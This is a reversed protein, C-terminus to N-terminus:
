PWGEPDSDLGRVEFDLRALAGAPATGGSPELKVDVVARPMRVYEAGSAVDVRMEGNRGSSPPALASARYVLDWTGRVPHKLYVNAAPKDHRGLLLTLERPTFRPREFPSLQAEFVLPAALVLQGLSLDPDAHTRRHVYGASLTVEQAGAVKYDLGLCVVVVRQHAAVAPELRPSPYEAPDAQAILELREPPGATGVDTWWDSETALRDLAPRRRARSGTWGQEDVEVSKSTLRVDVHRPAGPELDGVAAHWGGLQLQANRLRAQVTITGHVRKGPGLWEPQDTVVELAATVRPAPAPEMVHFSRESWMPVTVDVAALDPGLTSMVVSEGPEVGLPMALAPGGGRVTYGSEKFAHVRVLADAAARPDGARGFVVTLERALTASGRRLYGLGFALGSFTLALLPTVLWVMHLAHRRRLVLYQVPGVLVWYATVFLGVLWPTRRNPPEASLATEVPELRVRGHGLQNVRAAPRVDFERTQGRSPRPLVARWMRAQATRGTYSLPSRELDLALYTVSGDGLRARALLPVAGQPGKETVFARAGARLTAEPVLFPERVKLADSAALPLGGGGTSSLTSGPFAADLADLATLTVTHGTLEVPLVAALPTGLLRGPRAGGVVILAGGRVTWDLVADLGGTAARELDDDGVVIADVAALAAWHEPLDAARLFRVDARLPDRGQGRELGLAALSPPPHHQEARAVVITYLSVDHLHDPYWAEATGLTAGTPDVVSVTADRGFDDALLVCRKRTGPALEVAREWTRDNLQYRVVAPGSATSSDLDVVVPAFLGARVAGAVGVRATVTVSAAWGPGGITLAWVIALAAARGSM